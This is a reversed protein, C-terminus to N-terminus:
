LKIGEMVKQIETTIDDSIAYALKDELGNIAKYKAEEFFPHPETGNQAISWQIKYALEKITGVKPIVPKVKIWEELASIPAWHPKTGKDLYKWYDELHIDVRYENDTVTVEAYMGDGLKGSSYSKNRGMINRAEQVFEDGARQLVEEFKSM